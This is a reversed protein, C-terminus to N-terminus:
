RRQGLLREEDLTGYDRYIRILLAFAVGTTSVMVVIATLMLVHPLPSMYIEAGHAGPHHPIIPVTGGTKVAFSTFLLVVAAQLINLGILKKVLNRKGLMGYFGIVILGATMWYEFRAEILASM